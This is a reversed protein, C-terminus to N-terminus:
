RKRWSAGDKCDAFHSTWRPARAPAGLELQAAPKGVHRAVGKGDIEWEGAADDRVFPAAKGVVTHAFVISAGCSKCAPM